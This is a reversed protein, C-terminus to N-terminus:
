EKIKELQSIIDARLKADFNTEGLIILFCEKESLNSYTGLFFYSAIENIEEESHYTTIVSKYYETKNKYDHLCIIDDIKDHLHESKDGICTFYKTGAELLKKIIRDIDLAEESVPDYTTILVSRPLWDFDTIKNFFKFSCINVHNSNFRGKIM